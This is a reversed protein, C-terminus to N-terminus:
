EIETMFYMRSDYDQYLRTGPEYGVGAFGQSLKIGAYNLLSGSVTVDEDEGDMKIFHAATNHLLSDKKIHVPSVTNILDGFRHISHKLSRNTFRYQKDDALGRTQFQAYSANPMVHEQVMIGVAQKQEGDVALWKVLQLSEDVSTMSSFTGASGYNWSGTLRSGALRQWTGFQLIYRWKKYIKIQESIEQKEEKSIECLNCEYGLVGFSAVNFRTELPTTRLTQHNPCGSVHAGIVSQPYGYSYGNQIVTRSIADTNDSAWIQPMYSLIGLDFRNGGSACGEFLIHPFEAMLTQMVQYLGLIYRHSFEGQQEPPLAASFVDSFNRNMDWKVYSIDGASFVQRMQSIINERVEERTFDLIMQNRGEAHDRGPVQVAWDPHQRYLESDVNVMEPEVWIGFQMGLNKVKEALGAIGGPLKKEYVQWDGLSSTDNDRQGFWGDDMVFLEIGVDRGAKALKLLKSENFDFYAAEWSNLLVPREKWKWEGRVIHERVFVHMQRSMGAFGADSCSIVAEPTEFSTGPALQWEFAEPNIGALLRTKAHGNVEVAEYHNGSYVLNVAYCMGCDETTDMHSLMVFPNARNSSTGTNASNVMRGQDVCSDFRNMERTWEGGFRTFCYGSGALDLQLSMLRKIRVTQGSENKLVASRTICDCEPFISYRLELILAQTRDRLNLILTSASGTDDYAAPLTALGPKGEQITHSEYVFDTTTSGDAMVLEVFPQRFDGKGSGSIELCIEEMGVDPTEKQYAISCGSLNVCKHRLATLAAGCVSIKRGYYLHELQGTPIVAFLYSTAKGELIFLGNDERIM